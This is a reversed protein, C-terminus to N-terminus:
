FLLLFVQTCPTTAPLSPARHLAPCPLAARSSATCCAAASAWAACRERAKSKKLQTEYVGANNILVHLSPHDRQVRDALRRVGVLSALDETFGQASGGSGAGAQQVAQVAQQM